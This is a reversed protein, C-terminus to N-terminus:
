QVIVEFRLQAFGVSTEEGAVDIFTVVEAFGSTIIVGDDVISIHVPPDTVKVAVDKM